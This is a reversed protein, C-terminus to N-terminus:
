LYKWAYKWWWFYLKGDVMEFNMLWENCARIADLEIFRWYLKAIHIGGMGFSRFNLEIWEIIQKVFLAFVRWYCYCDTAENQTNMAIHTKNLHILVLNVTEKAFSYNLTVMIINASWLMFCFSKKREGPNLKQERNWMTIRCTTWASTLRANISCPSM